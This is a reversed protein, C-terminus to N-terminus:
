LGKGATVTIQREDAGRRISLTVSDGPKVKEAHRLADAFTQVRAGGVADIRDGVKLGARAAPSNPFVSKVLLHNDAEKLQVGLFGAPVLEPPVRKGLFLGMLKMMGSMASLSAPAGGKIKLPVAPKPTVDLRTWKMKHRAFDFELRYRALLDYGVIGHLPVGAFNMANMGEVQFPTEVRIKVKRNVAGGEVEFRDVVAWGEKDRQLGLTKGIELSVFTFPAGTDIIYNFPGKGNIKVRVLVHGTETLRYPIHYTKGKDPISGDAGVPVLACLLISAIGMIM